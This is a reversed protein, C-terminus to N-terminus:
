KLLGREESYRLFGEVKSTKAAIRAAHWVEDWRIAGEKDLMLMLAIVESAENELRGRVSSGSYTDDIGFRLVKMCEQSVEACEEALCAILHM